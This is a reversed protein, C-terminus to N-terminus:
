FAEAFDDGEFPIRRQRGDGFLIEPPQACRVYPNDVGGGLREEGRGQVVEVPDVGVGVTAAGSQEGSMGFSSGSSRRM